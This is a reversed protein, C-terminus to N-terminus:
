ISNIHYNHDNPPTESLAEGVIQLLKAQTLVRKAPPLHRLQSSLNMAFHYSDDQQQIMKDINGQIIEFQKSFSAETQKRKRPKPTIELASSSSASMNISQSLEDEVNLNMSTPPPSSPTTSLEQPLPPEIASEETQSDSLEM